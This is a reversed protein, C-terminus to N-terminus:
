AAQASDRAPRHSDGNLSRKRGPTSGPSLKTPAVIRNNKV